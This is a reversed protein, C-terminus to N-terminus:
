QHWHEEEENDMGTVVRRVVLREGELAFWADLKETVNMRGPYKDAWIWTAYHLAEWDFATEYGGIHPGVREFAERVATTIDLMVPGRVGWVWAWESVMPVNGGFDVPAALIAAGSVDHITAPPMEGGSWKLLPAFIDSGSEALLLGGFVSEGRRYVVSRIRHSNMLGIDRWKAEAKAGPQQLEFKFNIAFGDKPDKAINAPDLFYEFSQPLEGLKCYGGKGEVWDCTAWPLANFPAQALLTSSVSLLVARLLWM